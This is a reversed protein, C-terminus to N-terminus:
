GNEGEECRCWGHCRVRGCSFCVLRADPWSHTQQCLECVGTLRGLDESAEQAIERRERLARARAASRGVHRIM